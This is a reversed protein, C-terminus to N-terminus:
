LIRSPRAEMEIDVSDTPSLVEKHHRYEKVMTTTSASSSSVPSLTSVFAMSKALEVDSAGHGQDAANRNEGKDKEDQQPNNDHTHAQLQSCSDVAPGQHRKVVGASQERNHLQRVVLSMVILLVSMCSVTIYGKFYRPAHVQQWVILPLWIQLLYAIENMAAITIAREESDRECVENAWSTIM